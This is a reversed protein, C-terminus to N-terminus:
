LFDDFDFSLQEPIPHAIIYDVQREIEGFPIGYKFGKAVTNEELSFKKLEAWYEPHNQKLYAFEQIGANPCFWCNGGRRKMKYDPSLLGYKKCLIGAQFHTYEYKELLSVQDKRKHLRKLRDTENFCIGCIETINYQKRLEKLRKKMPETKEGNMKCSGGFLFGYYKGINEQPQNKATRVKYFWYMYDKDSSVFEVPYGWSEIMPKAVNEVWEIHEPSEAPIGRKKDFWMRTMLVLDIHIGNEHALILSATSDQGGSWALVSFDEMPM